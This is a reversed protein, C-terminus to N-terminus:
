LLTFSRINNLQINIYRRDFTIKSLHMFVKKYYFHIKPLKDNHEIVADLGTVEALKFLEM